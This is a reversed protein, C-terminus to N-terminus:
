RVVTIKQTRVTGEAILRVFYLGSPLRRADFAVEKHGAEQRGTVLTAVWRGRVDYVELQVEASQPLEYRITAHARVPNPFPRQLALREPAGREVVVEPSYASAGDFDTQKLRYVFTEADFPLERDTFRYAQPESTTGAGEVFGIKTWTAAARRKRHVDFGANNTEAATHWTLHVAEDDMRAEFSTLEVPLVEGSGPFFVDDVWARDRGSSISGDKQYDWTLVRRGADLTFTATRWGTEGSWSGQPVGDVSFTLLDFGEESSVRYAFTIAESESLFVPIELTSSEDHSIQGSASARSGSHASGGSLAWPAEGRTRWPYRGRLREQEFTETNDDPVVVRAAHPREVQRTESAADTLAVTLGVQYIGPVDTTFSTASELPDSLTASSGDPPTLDWSFGITFDEISPGGVEGATVTTAEGTGALKSTPTVDITFLETPILATTAPDDPNPNSM